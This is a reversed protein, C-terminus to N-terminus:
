EFLVRKHDVLSNSFFPNHDVWNYLFIDISILLVIQFFEIKILLVKQFFPELKVTPFLDEELNNSTAPYLRKAM